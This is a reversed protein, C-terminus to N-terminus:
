FNFVMVSITGKLNKENINVLTVTRHFRILKTLSIVVRPEGIM